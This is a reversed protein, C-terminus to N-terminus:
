IKQLFFAIYANAYDLTIEEWNKAQVPYVQLLLKAGKVLKEEDIKNEESICDILYILSSFIILDPSAFSKETEFNINMEKLRKNYKSTLIKSAGWSLTNIWWGINDTWDLGRGKTKILGKIYPNYFEKRMNLIAWSLEDTTEIKKNLFKSFFYKSVELLNNKAIFWEKEVNQNPLKKPNIKWRTFMEIKKDLDPIKEYLEPFDQKYTEKLIKMSTLYGIQYKRSLQLLATCCAAYAQQIFYTLVEKDYKGEVSYYEIMQSMRDLLLKAGESLPIEEMKFDPILNRLDEGFLIRSNNRLEYNRIRPLLNKLDKATDCKLDIYFCGEMTQNEKKFPYFNSIGKYGLKQSIEISIEDVEKKSLKKENIVQLDYDNYPYFKWKIKKVPGEGRSFGGTLIISRTDPIKKRIEECIIEMDGAIKKDAEKSITYKQHEM